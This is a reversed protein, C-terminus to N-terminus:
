AAMVLRVVNGVWETVMAGNEFFLNHKKRRATL